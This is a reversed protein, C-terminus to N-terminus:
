SPFLERARKVVAGSNTLERVPRYLAPPAVQFARAYEAITHGPDARVAELVRDGLEGTPATAPAPEATGRRNRGRGAGARARGPSGSRSRAATPASEAEDHEIGMEVAVKRLEEYERVLPELERLRSAIRHRVTRVEEILSMKQHCSNTHRTLPSRDRELCKSAAPATYTGRAIRVHLHSM